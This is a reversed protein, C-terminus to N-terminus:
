FKISMGDSLSYKYILWGPIFAIILASLQIIALIFLDNSTLMNIELYFGYYSALPAQLTFLLLYLLAVGLLIGAFCVFGAEGIILGFIHSPRAGVSRLIAMERRRENLSMLIISLMGLLGVLVVFATVINLAVEALSFFQWLEQLAVAPIIASLPEAQYNNVYSQMGLIAQPSTLGIFIANIKEPKIKLLRAIRQDQTDQHSHEAHEEHAVEDHHQHADHDAHKEHDVEDHHQHADHDAHEEHAIEDHHQHADHDQHNDSPLIQEGPLAGFHGHNDTHMAEMAELSIILTQDIATFSPALIASIYFPINDHHHGEIEGGGHTVIVQDGIKYNLKEAVESGIVVAFMDDDIAGREVSLHQKNAFSFYDYFTLDTAMVTYGKHSDGMSIPVAWEVAPSQSIKKYTSYKITNPTNGIHFVSSLLLQSSAGRSGIILDTGSISKMFSSNTETKLTQVGLLLTVSIAISFLTIFFTLKRNLLSKFALSLIAM